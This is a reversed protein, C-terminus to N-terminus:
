LIEALERADKAIEAALRRARSARVMSEQAKDGIYGAEELVKLMTAAARTFGERKWRQLTRVSVGIDRGHLEELRSVGHIVLLADILDTPTTQPADEPTTPM